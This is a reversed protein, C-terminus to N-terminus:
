SGSIQRLAEEAEVLEPFDRMIRRYVEAAREVDGFDEYTQARSYLIVAEAPVEREVRAERVERALPPLDAAATILESMQFLMDFLEERDDRVRQATLVESTEVDVIRANLSFDGFLDVFGGLIVYRAGVIRGIQAATGADVRGSAGLDQEELIERLMAREVIRLESNRALETLLMHQLGVELADMDERDPGYSGGNEFPFVAVGPRDDAGEPVQPSAAQPALVLAGLVFACLVFAKRADPGSVTCIRSDTM